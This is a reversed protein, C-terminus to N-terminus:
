KSSQAASAAEADVAKLEGLEKIVKTWEMSDTKTSIPASLDGYFALINVRLEPPADAYHGALKDLLQAYARDGLKYKGGSTIEGVDFNENPLKLQDAQLASLLERYRDLTSNFSAMFLKEVAPTPTEFRLSRARGIPLIRFVFALFRSGIGPQQYERGWEKRYSARSLNYLFKKKTAGPTDKIIESRKMQWAVRTMAPITSSVAHRYSGIALSVSTFVDGLKMGYTDQFARELVPRAVKFGIFGHYSEPAYHGQAVQLVDFALETKIHSLADDSYTVRDGFQLRLKPYLLPVAVNTAMRHGDNDAAYHALAGLSFAFENLDQSEHILNLVFDGSRVYHALDTFLKSGFPFYGMDQIISGGYAYAHAELLQEPTSDPFRKLLLSKISSDWASDVIAEHTLVSYSFARPAALLVVLCVLIACRNKLLPRM